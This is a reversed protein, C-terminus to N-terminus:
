SREGPLYRHLLEILQGLRDPQGEPVSYLRHLGQSLRTSTSTRDPVSDAKVPADRPVSEINTEPPTRRV